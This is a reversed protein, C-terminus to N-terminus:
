IIINKTEIYYHFIIEKRVFSLKLKFGQQKNRHLVIRM